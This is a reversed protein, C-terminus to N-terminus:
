DNKELQFVQVRANYSDAVYIHDQEDIYLGAPMWFEGKGQGQSGFSYLFRGERDFVQVAHFLADAVYIHGQSDTAIGKPRAMYGTADGSEGFSGLFMGEQDFIQIRYNMSDVVYIRGQQDIWIFTPFNFLGPGTGRGGKSGLFKGQSSFRSIRHAATEVVWIDGGARNCAIGTPQHLTVSDCFDLVQDGALRFVRDLSSDTFLLDDGSMRCIGVLSPFQQGARKMSRVMTGKGDKQEFIGGAGQDLIWFQDQDVAIVNFPKIVERAQQGFVIRSVRDGFSQVQEGKEGPFTGIWRVHYLNESQAGAPLLVLLALLIVMLVKPPGYLGKIQEAHLILHKM